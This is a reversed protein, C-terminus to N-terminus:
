QLDEDGIAAARGIQDIRTRLARAFRQAEDDTAGSALLGDVLQRQTLRRAFRYFWRAHALTIGNAIDATRQGSYGFVVCGDRVGRVFEASQAEFGDIDWG